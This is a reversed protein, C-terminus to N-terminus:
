FIMKRTEHDELSIHKAKRFAEKVHSKIKLIIETKLHPLHTHTRYQVGYTIRYIKIRLSNVYIILMKKKMKDADGRVNDNKFM